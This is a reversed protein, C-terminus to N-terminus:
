RSPNRWGGGGRGGAGGAAPLSLRHPRRAHLGTGASGPPAPVEHPLGRGLTPAPVGRVTHAPPPLSAAAQLAAREHLLLRELAEGLNKVLHFRDAVQVAHPAGRRAGEAYVRGRDRSIVQVGPHQALWQAVTDANRDPLLDIAERRELDV